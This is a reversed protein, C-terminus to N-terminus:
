NGASEESRLFEIVRGEWEHKDVFTLVRIPSPSVHSVFASSGVPPITAPAIDRAAESDSEAGASQPLLAIRGAAESELVVRLCVYRHQFIEPWLVYSAALADWAYASPGAGEGTGEEAREKKSDVGRVRPDGHQSRPHSIQDIGTFSSMMHALVQGGVDGLGGAQSARRLLAHM